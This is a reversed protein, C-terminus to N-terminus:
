NPSVASYQMITNDPASNRFIFTEVFEGNDFSSHCEAYLWEPESTETVRCSKVQHVRGTRARVERIVYGPFEKESVNTSLLDANFEKHFEAILRQALLAAHRHENMRVFIVALGVVGGM